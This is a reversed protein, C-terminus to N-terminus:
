AAPEVELMEQGSRQTEIRCKELLAIAKKYLEEETRAYQGGKFYENKNNRTEQMVMLSCTATRRRTVSACCGPLYRIVRSPRFGKRQFLPFSQGKTRAVFSQGHPLHAWEGAERVTDKL